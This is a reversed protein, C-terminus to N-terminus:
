SPDGAPLVTKGAGRRAKAVWLRGRRETSGGVEELEEPPRGLVHVTWLHGLVVKLAAVAPAAVLMGLIGGLSAGALLALLVAAPHLKVTRHLVLPSIVHSELQQVAVMVAVVWLATVADRTVLAVVVALAGGVLPGVLPVLDSVGAIVGLLAWFPVGLLALGVSTLVGVIAAVIIQGRVFGGVVAHLKRAVVVVEPAARPPLLEQARARLRPLDVLLYFAIVPGTLLVVLVNLVRDGARWLQSLRDTVSGNFQAALDERTFELPTGRVDDERDSLWGEVRAQVEPWQRRFEDAQARVVPVISVVTLVLLGLGALYLLTTAALRPFGRRQLRAVLPNLLLVIVGALLLPPFIVRVIWALWLAVGLALVLGVVAWATQGWRRVTGNSTDDHATTEGGANPPLLM